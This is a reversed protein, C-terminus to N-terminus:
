PTLLEGGLIRGVGGERDFRACKRGKAECGIRWRSKIQARIKWKVLVIHTSDFLM